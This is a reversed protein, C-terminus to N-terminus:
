ATLSDLAHRIVRDTHARRGGTTRNASLGNLVSFLFSADEKPDQAADIEGAAQLRRIVSEFADRVRDAGESVMRRIEPDDAVPGFSTIVLLCAGSGLKQQADLAERMYRHVDALTAGDCQLPALDAIVRQRYRSLVTAFLQHKDGFANYLSQRSLGTADLLDRISCRDYGLRWFVMMAQSLAQEEDFERPRAM